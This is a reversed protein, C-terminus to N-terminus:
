MMQAHGDRIMNKWTSLFAPVDGTQKLSVTHCLYFYFCFLSRFTADANHTQALYDEIWMAFVHPFSVVGNHM